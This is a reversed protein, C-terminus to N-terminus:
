NRRTLGLRPMRISGATRGDRGLMEQDAVERRTEQELAAPVPLGAEEPRLPNSAGHVGTDPKAIWWSQLQGFMSFNESRPLRVESGLALERPISEADKVRLYIPILSQNARYYRALSDPATQSEMALRLVECNVDQNVPSLHLMVTTGVPYDQVDSQALYLVVETSGAALLEAIPSTQDTFEGVFRHTRVIRGSVPARVEGQQIVERTSQLEAQLNEIRALAPRVGDELALAIPSQDSRQRLARVAKGLQQIRHQKGALQFQLSELREAGAAGQHHMREFRRVQMRLDAAQSQEWLLESWKDYFESLSLKSADRIKDAEWRIMALKSALRAQELRLSDEIEVHKRRMELSDIQAILDGPEVRDGERVNISQVIGPWPAALEIRHGIVQGYATYRLTTNVFHFGFGGLVMLLIAGALLRGKPRTQSPSLRHAAQNPQSGGHIPSGQQNQNGRKRDSAVRASTGSPKAGAESPIPGLDVSPPATDPYGLVFDGGEAMVGGDPMDLQTPNPPTNDTM